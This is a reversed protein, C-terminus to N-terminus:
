DRRDRRIQSNLNDLRAMLTNEERDSLRGDRRYVREDQRISELTVHQLPNTMGSTNRCGRTHLVLSRSIGSYIRCSM